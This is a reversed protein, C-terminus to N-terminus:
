FEEMLVTYKVKAQNRSCANFHWWESPINRFGESQMVKRLLKRNEVQATTLEGTALFQAELSPYAIKRIDDYGAGMDLAKGSADVITLDVAAGFNHLSRNAPNSVFKGRERIPITDLADWMRQQVAVPRVADYILLSYGPKLDQLYHQVKGIRIAVDDQLYANRLKTYLIMKMFNDSTAYKLDVKITPDISQIDVLNSALLISDSVKKNASEIQYQISDSKIEQQNEITNSQNELDSDSNCSQFICCLIACLLVNFDKKKIKKMRSSM